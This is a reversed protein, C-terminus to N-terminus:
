RPTRRQAALVIDAAVEALHRCTARAQEALFESAEDTSCGLRAILIGKAREVTDRTTAPTASRGPPLTAHALAVAAYSAFVQALRVSAEDLRGGSFDYLNLAGGSRGPAPMGVSASGQLGVGWAVAAYDPYRHERDLRLLAITAGTLAADVCPGAGREYQRQDLDAAVRSTAAATTPRGDQLLTVSVQDAGPVSARTLEAVREMVRDLPVEDLHIRSLEALAREAQRSSPGRVPVPQGSPGSCHDASGASGVLTTM